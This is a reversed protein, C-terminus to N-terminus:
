QGSHLKRRSKRTARTRNLAYAMATWYAYARTRAVNRMARLHTVATEYHGANSELLALSYRADDFGPSLAIARKLAPRIEDASIGSDQALIAYRYCLNADDVGEDIAQKWERRATERDGKRLALTGLAASVDANPPSERALDRYLAQARDLEGIALLLEAMLSRSAFASITSFQVATTMALDGPFPLRANRHGTDTWAHLDREVTDAPKAYVDAIAHPSPIGATLAALLAQFRPGYEPSLVLM